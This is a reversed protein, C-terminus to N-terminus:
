FRWGFRLAIFLADINGTVSELGLDRGAPTADYSPNAMHTWGLELTWVAPDYPGYFDLGARLTSAFGWHTDDMLTRTEFTSTDSWEYGPNPTADIITSTRNVGAGALLYPRIPGATALSFKATPLILLTNGSVDTSSAPLLSQSATRSRHIYDLMLGAGWRPSLQYLYHGGLVIGIDGNNDSGGGTSEFDIRSFPIALGMDFSFYHRLNSPRYLSLRSSPPPVPATQVRPPPPADTDAYDIREIRENPINLMGDATHFQIDRATASVITGQIRSGDKLYVVAAESATAVLCLIIFTWLHRV